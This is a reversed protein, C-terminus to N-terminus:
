GTCQSPREEFTGQKGNGRGADSSRIQTQTARVNAAALSEEADLAVLAAKAAQVAAQANQLEADAAAVRADFEEPDIRVLPDGKKVRQNHQVLVEAVLGRVKPAVSSSDAQVYADDTSEAAKPMVIYTAGLIALAALGVPTVSVYGM